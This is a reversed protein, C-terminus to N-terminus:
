NNTLGLITAEDNLALGHYTDSLHWSDKPNRMGRLANDFNMTRINEFKM